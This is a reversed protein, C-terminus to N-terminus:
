SENWSVNVYSLFQFSFSFFNEKAHGVCNLQIRVRLTEIEGAEVKIAQEVFHDLNLEKVVTVPLNFQDGLNRVLARM